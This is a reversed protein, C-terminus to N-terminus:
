DILRANIYRMCAFGRFRVLANSAKRTHAIYICSQNISQNISQNLYM